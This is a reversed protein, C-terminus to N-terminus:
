VGNPVILPKQLLVTHLKAGYVGIEGNEDVIVIGAHVSQYGTVLNLQAGSAAGLLNTNTADWSAYPGGRMANNTQLPVDWHVKAPVNGGLLASSSKAIGNSVTERFYAGTNDRSFGLASWKTVVGATKSAVVLYIGCKGAGVPTPIVLDEAYLHVTLDTFNGNGAQLEKMFGISGDALNTMDAVVAAKTAVNGVVSTLAVSTDTLDLASLVQVDLRIQNDKSSDGPKLVSM